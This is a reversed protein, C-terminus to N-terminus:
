PGQCSSNVSEVNRRMARAEGASNLARMVPWGSKRAPPRTNAVSPQRWGRLHSVVLLVIVAGLRGATNMM